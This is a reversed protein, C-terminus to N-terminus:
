HFETDTYKKKHQWSFMQVTEAPEWSVTEYWVIFRSLGNHSCATIQHSHGKSDHANDDFSNFFHAQLM